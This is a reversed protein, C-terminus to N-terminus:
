GVFRGTRPVRFLAAKEDLGKEELRGLLHDFDEDADIIERKWIAVWKGGYRDVNIPQRTPSPVVRERV